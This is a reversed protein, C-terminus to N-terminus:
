GAASQLRLSRRRRSAGLSLSPTSILDPGTLTECTLVQSPKIDAWELVIEHELDRNLMLVAAQNAQEDLTAVVDVYPVQANRAFDAQLNGAEIAYSDTEVRLDLLTGRACRMAWAYPSYTSQRLLGTENTAIPASVNNYLEELLRPAHAGRGNTTEENRARYWVNWEDFKVWLRKSSRQLGQVYDCVAAVEHIHRDIDLNM